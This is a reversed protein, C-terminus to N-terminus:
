ETVQITVAPTRASEAVDRLEKRADETRQQWHQLEVQLKRVERAHAAAVQRAEQLQVDKGRDVERSGM